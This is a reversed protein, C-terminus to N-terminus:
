PKVGECLRRLAKRLLTDLDTVTESDYQLAETAEKRTFGLNMLASLAEELPGGTPLAKEPKLRSRLEVCLRAARKPGIGPVRSLREVDGEAVVQTFEEPKFVSVINLALRPGLRPLAQLRKFLNRTEQDAFGYLELHEGRLNLVVWFTYDQGVPPIKEYLSFPILVEMVVPGIQLFVRDTKKEVITGKLGALV